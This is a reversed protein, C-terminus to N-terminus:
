REGRLAVYRVGRRVGWEDCSCSGVRGQCLDFRDRGRIAGGRDNLTVLRPGGWEAPIDCWIVARRRGRRAIQWHGPDAAACYPQLREGKCTEDRPWDHCETCYSTCTARRITYPRALAGNIAERKWENLDPNALADRAWQEFADRPAATPAPESVPAMVVVM